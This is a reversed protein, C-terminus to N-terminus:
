AALHYRGFRRRPTGGVRIAAPLGGTSGAECPRFCDKGPCEFDFGALAHRSPSVSPGEQVFHPILQEILATKGSGSYGAFGFVKM